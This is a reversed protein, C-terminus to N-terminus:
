KIKKRNHKPYQQSNLPAKPSLLKFSSGLTRSYTSITISLPYMLSLANHMSSSRLLAPSNISIKVLLYTPLRSCYLRDNSSYNPEIKIHSVNSSHSANLISNSYLTVRPWLSSNTSITPNSNTIKTTSFSSLTTPRISIYNM